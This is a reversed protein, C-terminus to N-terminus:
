DPELVTPKEPLTPPPSLIMWTRFAGWLLSLAASAILLWTLDPANLLAISLNAQFFAPIYYLAAVAITVDIVLPIVIHLAFGGLSRCKLSLGKRRRRLRIIDVLMRIIVTEAPAAMFLIIRMILGGASPAAPTRGALRSAIRDALESARLGFTFSNTNVLLGLGLNSEPLIIMNAHFSPNDGDHWVAAMGNKKGVYWGMGYDQGQEGQGSVPVAAGHMANMGAASLLTTKAFRGGNMQAILYHGLDEASTILYGAPVESRPYILDTDPVPLGFWRHYGTALGHAMSETKDAFSHHMNLPTFVHQKVYDGFPQGSVTQVILGLIDYNANSYEWTTGPAHSLKAKSLRRVNAELTGDHADSNGHNTRGTLTTLGSTQTLLHRITIRAAAQADALGFWPLYTQVPADLDIRGAEALQMIALATFSKSLSGIIFPTQATVSRGTPDATGFGRVHVIRDDRVIVLALGPIHLARMEEAVLDDVARFNFPGNASGAPVPQAQNAPTRANLRTPLILVGVAMLLILSVSLRRIGRSGRM